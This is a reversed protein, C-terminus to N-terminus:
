PCFGRRLRRLSRSDSAPATTGWCVSEREEVASSHGAARVRRLGLQAEYEATQDLLQESLNERRRTRITDLAIQRLWRALTPDLGATYSNQSSLRAWRQHPDSPLPAGALEDDLVAAALYSGALSPHVGDSEWLGVSPRRRLALAWADGIPTYGFGRLTSLLSYGFRLRAQMAAYTDHRVLPQDGHAYGWTEFVFAATSRHGRKAILSRLYTAAPITWNRLWTMRSPLHSQEQAVVVDWRGQWLLRVLQRDYQDEWFTSGGPAYTVAIVSYPRHAQGAALRELIEGLDNRATLSNGILLVRLGARSGNVLRLDATVEDASVRPSAQM